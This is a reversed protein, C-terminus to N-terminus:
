NGSSTNIGGCTLLTVILPTTLRALMSESDWSTLKSHAVAGIQRTKGGDTAWSEGNWLSGEIGMAESPYDVGLETNNKFVRIPVDDM